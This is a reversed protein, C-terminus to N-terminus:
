VLLLTLLLFRVSQKTETCLCAKTCKLNVLVSKNYPSLFRRCSKKYVRKSNLFMWYYNNKKLFM